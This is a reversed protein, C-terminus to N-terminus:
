AISLTSRSRRTSSAAVALRALRHVHQDLHIERELGGLVARRDVRHWADQGRRGAHLPRSEPPQHQKRREDLSGSSARGQNRRSRASRSPHTSFPVGASCSRSSDIPILWSKSTAM